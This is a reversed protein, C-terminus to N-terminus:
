SSEASSVTAISSSVSENSSKNANSNILAILNCKEEDPSLQKWRNPNDNPKISLMAIQYLQPDKNLLYELDKLPVKDGNRIRSAIKMCIEKIEEPSPPEKNQGSVNKLLNSLASNDRNKAVMEKIHMIYLLNPDYIQEQNSSLQVTDYNANQTQLNPQESKTPSDSKIYPQLTSNSQIKM